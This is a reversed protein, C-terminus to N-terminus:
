LCELSVDCSMLWDVSLGPGVPVPVATGTQPTDKLDDFDPLKLLGPPEASPRKFSEEDKRFKYLRSADQKQSM